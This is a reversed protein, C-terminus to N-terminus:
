CVCAAIAPASSRVEFCTFPNKNQGAIKCDHFAKKLGVASLLTKVVLHAIDARIQDYSIGQGELYSRLWTLSRKSANEDDHENQVFSENHKNISYNTLHMFMEQRNGPCPQVYPVTCFRCLGEQFLYVRLPDCCTVLVYIRMDFKYGNILLPRLLYSQVISSQQPHCVVESAALCLHIGRGQAGSSPKVIVCKSGKRLYSCVAEYDAPLCWTMPTFAYEAACLSRMRAISRALRDKRYLEVMGPFHNIRQHTLMSRVTKEIGLGGDVWAVDWDDGTLDVRTSIRWNLTRAVSPIIAYKTHAINISIGSRTSSKKRGKKLQSSEM